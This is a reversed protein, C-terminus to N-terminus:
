RQCLDMRHMRGGPSLLRLRLRSSKVIGYNALTRSNELLPESRFSLLQQDLPIGFELLIMAKIYGITQSCMVEHKIVIRGTMTRISICM